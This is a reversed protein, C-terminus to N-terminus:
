GIYICRTLIFFFCNFLADVLLVASSFLPHVEYTKLFMLNKYLEADLTGLDNVLNMYNYKGHMFALFFHAFQPQLTINEFLAKGLVRGLFVFMNDMEFSDYLLSASPNPYLLNSSTLCFLGYSPDFVRWSLDTVFDKFLGGADIGAEEEGFDNVYKVVIRDKIAAGVKALAQVGDEIIRAKRVCVVVGRSRQVAAYPDNSGQVQLREADAVSRFLKMREHFDVSWPMVKLLADGFPSRQQLEALLARGGTEQVLFLFLVFYSSLNLFNYVFLCAFLYFKFVLEASCLSCRRVQIEWLGPASFPRRAWRSYLDALVESVVRAAGRLMQQSLYCRASRLAALCCAGPDPHPGSAAADVADWLTVRMSNNSAVDFLFGPDARLTLFLVQKLCRVLRLVQHL